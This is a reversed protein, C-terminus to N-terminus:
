QTVEKTVPMSSWVFMGIWVFFTLFIFLMSKTILCIAFCILALWMIPWRHQHNRVAAIVAPGFYCATFILSSM